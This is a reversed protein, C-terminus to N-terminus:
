GKFIVIAFKPIGHDEGFIFVFSLALEEITTSAMKKKERVCQCNFIYFIAAATFSLDTSLFLALRFLVIRACDFATEPQEGFRVPL